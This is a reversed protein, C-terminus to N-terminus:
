RLPKTKERKPATSPAPTPATSRRSGASRARSRDRPAAMAWFRAARRSASRAPPVGAGPMTSTRGKAGYPACASAHAQRAGRPQEAVRRRGFVRLGRERGEIEGGHARLPSRPSRARRPADVELAFRVEDLLDAAVQAVVADGRPRGSAHRAGRRREASRLEFLGDPVAERREPEVFREVVRHDAGPSSSANTGAPVGM